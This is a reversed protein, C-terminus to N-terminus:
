PLGSGAGIAFNAVLRPRSEDSEGCIVARFGEIAAVAFEKLAVQVFTGGVERVRADLTPGALLFGFQVAIGDGAANALFGKGVRRCLVAVAIALVGCLRITVPIAHIELRVRIIAPAAVEEYARMGERKMEEDKGVM